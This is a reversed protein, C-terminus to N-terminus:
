RESKNGLSEANFFFISFLLYFDHLIQELISIYIYIYLFSRNM